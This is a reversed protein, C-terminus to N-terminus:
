RTVFDIINSIESRVAKNKIKKAGSLARNVYSKRIITTDLSAAFSELSKKDKKKEEHKEKQIVDAEIKLCIKNLDRTTTDYVWVAPTYDAQDVSLRAVSGCMVLTRGRYHEIFPKHNDGAIVLDFKHAKLFDIAYKPDKQGEWIKNQVLTEHVVLVNFVDTKKITPTAEGWSQGYIHVEKGNPHPFVAPVERLMFLSESNVLTQFPTNDMKLTHNVMDHQGAVGYVRACAWCSRLTEIFWNTLHYPQKHDDFFDGAEILVDCGEANLVDLIDYFKRKITDEYKDTRCRPTTIKAHLDGFFGIRM